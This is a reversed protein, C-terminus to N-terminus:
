IDEKLVSYVVTREPYDKLIPDYIGASTILNLRRLDHKGFVEKLPFTDNDYTTIETVEFVLKGGNEDAVIIEDGEVLSVLEFFVSPEGSPTDYHAAMVSNGVEGPLSGLKYWAANLPDKPIDMRGEIDKEVHEVPVSIDLTPIELTSPVIPQIEPSEIVEEHVEAIALEPSEDHADSFSNSYFYSGILGFVIFFTIIIIKM